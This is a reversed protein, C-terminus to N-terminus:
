RADSDDKRKAEEGCCLIIHSSKTSGNPDILTRIHNLAKEYDTFSEEHFRKDAEQWLVDYSMAM